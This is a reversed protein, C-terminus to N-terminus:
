QSLILKGTFSESGIVLRVFYIGSSSQKGRDDKGDWGARHSGKPLAGRHITKVLQGRSNYIALKIEADQRLAYDVTLAPNFPNPYMSVIGNQLPISPAGTNQPSVLISIPGFFENGGDLELSELWYYYTAPEYVEVDRYAYVQMQSTNTAHVFTNLMLADTLDINVHRYIRYGVLNSETQTVWQLLVNNSGNIMATFSSLQVPLTQEDSRGITWTGKTLTSPVVIVISRTSGSVDYTGPYKTGGKNVAPEVSASWPFNGDDVNTWYFTIQKNGSYTGTIVWQRNVFNPMLSPTSMALNFSNILAGSTDIRIYNVNPSYYGDTGTSGSYFGSLVSLVNNVQINNTFTVGAPNAIDLNHVPFTFYTGTSQAVSGNYILKSTNGFATSSSIEPLLIGTVELIGNVQLDTGAGNTVSFTQANNVIVKGGSDITTQDIIVSVTVSVIHSNRITISISNAADPAAVANNWTSNNVSYQWTSIANWNGSQLTRYHFDANATGRLYPYGDNIGVDIDWVYIYDWNTFTSQTKMQVTTKGTGGASTSIGSTQTDWFCNECSGTSVTGGLGPPLSGSTLGVLGGIGGEWNGPAIGRTVTGTSYSRFIAGGITCGAVGGVRDGGSVNGRAFSDQTVGNQNCGVLGGYKINYPNNIGPTGTPDNPNRAVNNPHTASVTVKAYSFRIIPVRQKANSNNAGVLGGVSGLGRVQATGGSPEAYCREIIVTYSRAPLTHPLIVHGVLTGTARRGTVNPNLLGLNKIM